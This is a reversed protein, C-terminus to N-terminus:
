VQVSYMAALRASTTSTDTGLTGLSEDTSIGQVGVKYDVLQENTAEVRLLYAASPDAVTGLTCRGREGTQLTVQRLMDDYHTCRLNASNSANVTIHAGIEAGLHVQHFGSFGDSVAPLWVDSESSDEAVPGIDAPTVSRLTVVQDSVASRPSIALGTRVLLWIFHAEHLNRGFM